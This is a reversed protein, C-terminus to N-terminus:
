WGVNLPTRGYVWGQRIKQASCSRVKRYPRFRLSHHQSRYPAYELAECVSGRPGATPVPRMKSATTPTVSSHVAPCGVPEAVEWRIPVELKPKNTKGRGVFAGSAPTIEGVKVTSERAVLIVTEPRTRIQSLGRAPQLHSRSVPPVFYWCSAEPANEKAPTERSLPFM